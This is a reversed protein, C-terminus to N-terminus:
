QRVNGSGYERGKGNVIQRKTYHGHLFVRGASCISDGFYHSPSQPLYTSAECAVKAAYDMNKEKTSIRQWRNKLKYRAQWKGSNERRYLVVDGDRLHILTDSVAVSKTTKSKHPVTLKKPM